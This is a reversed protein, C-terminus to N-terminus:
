IIKARRRVVNTRDTNPLLSLIEDLAGQRRLKESSTNSSSIILDVASTLTNNIRDSQTQFVEIIKKAYAEIKRSNLAPVSTGALLSAVIPLVHWKFKRANSTVHSGSTLVHIRYLVLASSYFIIEKNQENFITEGLTDYMQQPYKYSLDPRRLYMACVARAVADLDLIRLAPVGRGVYQRDRREFYLRGERGEYTNFYSEVRRAIPSLSLFQSKKIESQSNTAEVLEGFVDEDGTEVVKLTMMVDDTLEARNEFLVHSTQCGNVIQFNTIFLRNTQVVVNPSVITVGNNLVPFRTKAGPRALTDAISRNVSNDAGLYHRVNDEFIQARITGDDSKLIKDVFENARVVALYSEAIGAILPLGAYSHMHLTAEIGSYSDVWAKVLEDRGIIKIEIRAFYGTDNLISYFEAKASEFAEPHEYVGTFIYYAFLGPKGGRIKTAKDLAVDFAARVDCQLESKASYNQSSVFRIVSDKFKLFDGLDLSDSRKAQTFAVDVDNMRRERNMVAIAEAENQVLEENVILALGDVGDDNEGTTIEDIDPSGSIKPNIFCFNCFKEFQQDEPEHKVGHEDAFSDLHSRVIRHLNSIQM